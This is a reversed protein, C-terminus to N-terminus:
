LEVTHIANGSHVVVVHCAWVVLLLSLHVAGCVMERLLNRLSRELWAVSM